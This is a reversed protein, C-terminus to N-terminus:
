RCFPWDRLKCAAITDFTMGFRSLINGFFASGMFGLNCTRVTVFPMRGVDHFYDRLAAFTVATLAMILKSFTQLAMGIWMGRKFETKGFIKGRRAQGAMFWLLDLEILELAMMAGHVAGGTVGFMPSHWFAHTTMFPMGRRHNLCVALIAMFSVHRQFNGIILIRIGFLTRATVLLGKIQQHGVLGFMMVDAACGTMLIFVFHNGMAFITVPNGMWSANYRLKWLTTTTMINGMIQVINGVMCRFSGLRSHFADFCIHFFFLQNIFMILPLWCIDTYTNDGM